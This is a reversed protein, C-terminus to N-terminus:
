NQGYKMFKKVQQEGDSILGLLYLGSQLNYIDLPYYFAYGGSSIAGPVYINFESERYGQANYITIVVFGSTKRYINLPIEFTGSNPTIDFDFAACSGESYNNLGAKYYANCENRYTKGDCACVPKYDVPCSYTPNAPRLPDTCPGSFQAQLQASLSCVLVALLLLPKFHKM